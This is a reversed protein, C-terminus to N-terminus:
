DALDLQPAPEREVPRPAPRRNNRVTGAFVRYLTNVLVASLIGSSAV